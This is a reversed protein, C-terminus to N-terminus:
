TASLSTPDFRYLVWPETRLCHKGPGAAADLKERLSILARLCQAQRVRHAGWSTALTTRPTILRQPHGTLFVLVDFEELTLLLERGRLTASRRVLDIRFDGSEIMGGLCNGLGASGQAPAKDRAEKTFMQRLNWCSSM